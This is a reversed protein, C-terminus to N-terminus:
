RVHIYKRIDYDAGNDRIIDTHFTDRVLEAYQVFGEMFEELEQEEIEDILGHYELIFLFRDGDTKFIKGADFLAGDSDFMLPEGDMDEFEEGDSWFRTVYETFKEKLEEITM